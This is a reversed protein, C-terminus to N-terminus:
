GGVRHKEELARVKDATWLDEWSGKSKSRQGRRGSTRPQGAKRQARRESSQQQNRTRGYLAAQAYIRLADQMAEQAEAANLGTLDVSERAAELVNARVKPDDLLEPIGRAVSEEARNWYLDKLGGQMAELADRLQANEQALPVQAQGLVREFASAAQDDLGADSAFSRALESLNTQHAGGNDQPDPQHGATMRSGLLREAESLRRKLEGLEQYAADNRDVMPKVREARALIDDEGMGDIEDATHGHRKLTRIAEGLAKIEDASRPEGDGSAEGSGEAADEGQRAASAPEERDEAQEGGDEPEAAQEAGQGGKRGGFDALPGGEELIKAEVRDMASDLGGGLLGTGEGEGPTGGSAAEGAMGALGQYENTAHDAM